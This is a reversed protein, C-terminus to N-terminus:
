KKNRAMNMAISIVNPIQTSLPIFRKGYEDIKSEFDFQDGLERRLALEKMAMIEMNKSIKINRNTAIISCLKDSDFSKIQDETLVIDDNTTSNNLESDDISMAEQLLSVIEEPDINFM